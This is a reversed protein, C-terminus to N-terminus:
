PFLRPIRPQEVWYVINSMRPSCLASNDDSVVLFLRQMLFHIPIGAPPRLGIKALHFEYEQCDIIAEFSERSM